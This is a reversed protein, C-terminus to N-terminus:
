EVNQVQERVREIHTKLEVVAHAVEADGAKSGITNAERYLEQVLFDLKRGVEGGEALVGDLHELHSTLRSLEESVDARESLVALERALDKPDLRTDDGLLAEARKKMGEFHRRVVEPMRAAVRERLESIVAANARLDAEISAGETQRMAVLNTLGQEVAAVLTEAEREHASEDQRQVIVGPLAAVDSLELDNELDLRQALGGLLELYRAALGEEVIATTPASGRTVNVTLTVAGRALHRRVLQDVRPELDAFESPLRFRTQLFRHNVSRVEVRVVLGEAAVEGLGFGTMSRIM